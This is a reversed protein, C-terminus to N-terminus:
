FEGKVMVWRAVQISTKVGYATFEDDIWTRYPWKMYRTVVPIGNGMQGALQAGNAFFGDQETTDFRKSGIKISTQSRPFHENGVSVSIKGGPRVFIYLDGKHILCTRVSTMKDRSCSISWNGSDGWRAPASDKSGAVVASDAFLRFWEGNLAGREMGDKSPECQGSKQARCFPEVGWARNERELAKETAPEDGQEVRKCSDSLVSQSSQYRHGTVDECIWADQATVTKTLLCAIVFLFYKM